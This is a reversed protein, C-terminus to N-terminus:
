RVASAGGLSVLEASFTGAFVDGPNPAEQTIKVTCSGGESFSALDMAISSPINALTIYSCGNPSLASEQTM